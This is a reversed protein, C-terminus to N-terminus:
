QRVLELAEGSKLEKTWTMADARVLSVDHGKRSVLILKAGDLRWANPSFIQMGRDQCREDLVAKMLEVKASPQAYLTLKCESIKSKIRSVNYEGIVESLKPSNATLVSTKPANIAVIQRKFWGSDAPKLEYVQEGESLLKDGKQHFELQAKDMDDRLSITSDDGLTWNKVNKLMSPFAKHCGALMSVPYKGKPGDSWLTVRCSNVGKVAKLEFIGSAAAIRAVDPNVIQPKVPQPMTEVRRLQAYASCAVSIFMLFSLFIRM